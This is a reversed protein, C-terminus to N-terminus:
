LTCVQLVIRALKETEWKVQGDELGAVQMITVNSADIGFRECAGYLEEKRRAGLGDANGTTVCLLHLRCGSNLLNIITPGFFMCEDDPHATLLLCRSTAQVPLMKRVSLAFLISIVLVFAVGCVLVVLM